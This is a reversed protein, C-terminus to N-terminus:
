NIRSSADGTAPDVDRLCYLDDVRCELTHALRLVWVLSPRVVGREWKSIQVGSTGCRVALEAQSLDRLRRMAQLHNVLKDM